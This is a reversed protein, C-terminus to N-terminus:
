AAEKTKAHAFSTFVEVAYLRYFKLYRTLMGLGMLAAGRSWWLNQPSGNFWRYSVYLMAADILAVAAVNRCFGYQNLFAQLRGMVVANNKALDYAPWFLGEGPGAIGLVQGKELVKSITTAPLVHFYGPMLARVFRPAKIIGFLVERPPGLIRGVLLREFLISSVSAALHGVVYAASAAVVGQVVTWQEKSFMGTGLIHDLAALFLFGSSLYAWFDYDKFPISGM